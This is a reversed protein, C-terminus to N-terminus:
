PTEGLETSDALLSEAESPAENMEKITNASYHSQGHNIEEMMKYHLRVMRLLSKHYPNTM